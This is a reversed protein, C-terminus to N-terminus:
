SPSTLLSTTLPFPPSFTCGPSIWLVDKTWGRLPSEVSPLLRVRRDSPRAMAGIPLRSWRRKWRRPAYCRLTAADLRDRRKPSPFHRRHLRLCDHRPCSRRVLPFARIYTLPDTNSSFAIFHSPGLHPPSSQGQRTSTPAIPSFRLIEHVVAELDPTGYRFM